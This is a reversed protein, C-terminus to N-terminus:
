NGTCRIAKVTEGLSGYCAMLRRYLEEALNDVELGKRYLVIAQGWQERQELSRGLKEILFLFRNKLREGLPLAWFPM